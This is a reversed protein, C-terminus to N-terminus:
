PAAVGSPHPVGAARRIEARFEEGHEMPLFHTAGEIRVVRTNRHRRLFSAFVDPDASSNVTGLLATIPQRIRSGMRDIAFPYVAFSAAEWQPACSLRFADGEPVVGTEVYNAIAEVPWTKFAGRGTFNKVAEERSGFRNRRKLAMATLPIARASRGIWRAFAAKLAMRNPVMVPEALVLAQAIGQREAAALITTSAGLSHGALVAPQLKLADLFGLLDDRYIRWGPLLRPDTPLDTLGHGRMDWALIRFEGGLPQLLTKYTSANLGNAHSFVVVPAGAPAEWELYSIVGAAVRAQRRIPDSM